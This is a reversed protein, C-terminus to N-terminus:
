SGHIQDKKPAPTQAGEDRNYKIKKTKTKYKKANEDYESINLATIQKKAKDKTQHCGMLEGDSEKIVAFYACDPHNEIIKYPM